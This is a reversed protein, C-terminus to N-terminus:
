KKKVVNIKFTLYFIQKQASASKIPVKMNEIDYWKELGYYRTYLHSYKFFYGIAFFTTLIILHEGCKTKSM